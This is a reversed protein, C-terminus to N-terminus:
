ILFDPETLNHKREKRAQDLKAQEIEKVINCIEQMESQTAIIDFEQDLYDFLKQYM